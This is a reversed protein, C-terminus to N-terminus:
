CGWGGFAHHPEPWGGAVACRHLPLSPAAPHLPQAWNKGSGLAIPSPIILAPAHSSQRQYTAAHCPSSGRRSLVTPRSPQGRAKFQALSLRPRLGQRTGRDEGLQGGARAAEEARRCLRRPGHAAALWDGRRDRRHHRRGAAEADRHAGGAQDGAAGQRPAARPSNSAARGRKGSDPVRSQRGLKHPGSRPAAPGRGRHARRRDGRLRDRPSVHRLVIARGDEDNRWITNLGTDARALSEATQECVLGRTLLATVVKGAAGGRLSGPLPLLNGDPRQGATSLIIMQTDSLRIM